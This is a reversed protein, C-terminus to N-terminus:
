LAQSVDFLRKVKLNKDFFSTWIRITSMRFDNSICNAKGHKNTIILLAQVTILPEYTFLTRVMTCKPKM